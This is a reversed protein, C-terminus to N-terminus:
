FRTKSAEGRRSELLEEAKDSTPRGGLMEFPGTWVGDGVRDGM